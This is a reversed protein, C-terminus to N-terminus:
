HLKEGTWEPSCDCTYEQIGDICTAGNACANNACDDINVECNTGRFGASYVFLHFIWRADNVKTSFLIDSIYTLWAPNNAIWM